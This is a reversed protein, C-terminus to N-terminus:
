EQIYVPRDDRDDLLDTFVRAGRELLAPSGSPDLMIGLEAAQGRSRRWEAWRRVVGQAVTRCETTSALFDYKLNEFLAQRRLSRAASYRVAYYPDGLLLALYPASWEESKSADMAPRWGMNWCAIARQAADGELLHALVAPVTRDVDGVNAPPTEYWAVLLSDTWALTRDLHCLNCANPRGTALEAVVSPSDIRHNRSAKRLGIVTNPMHCNMCDSGSSGVKHFTHAPIDAAYKPHCQLCAADGDMGATLQDNVWDSAPRPDSEDRHLTHCSFCSLEGKRFCPSDILGNYERGQPKVTGDSWFQTENTGPGHNITLGADLLADGPTFRIGTNRFERYDRMTTFNWVSHCRGCVESGRDHALDKPNVITDDSKGTLHLWYRRWPNRNAAIHADAPGHCAECAIGFEAVKTNMSLAEIIRPEAGTAHCAICRENWRGKVTPHHMSEDNPPQIFNTATPFWREDTIDYAVPLMGMVRGHESAFWYLQLHHSGTMMVIRRDVRPARAAPGTWSPDDMNVWLENERESLRYRRGFASVEVGDFSPVAAEPTALQTMTRHYSDHWSQYNSPHCAACEDSTTFGTVTDEIPRDAPPEVRPAVRSWLSGLALAIAVLSTVAVIARPGRARGLWALWVVAGAVFVTLFGEFSTM